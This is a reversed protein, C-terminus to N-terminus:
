LVKIFKLQKLGIWFLYAGLVLIIPNIHGRWLLASEASEGLFTFILSSANIIVHFIISSIVSQTQWAIYGLLVGLLYIQILWYPNFHIAAFFLSSLLIAKTIDGWATELYKQLFGRFLLEEGIPALLVITIILLLMSLPNDPTLLAELQLFSDPAPIIMDILINIEDALIMAGISLLITAIIVEKSVSNIRLYEIASLKKRNLYILVPVILFAQGFFMSIYTSLGPKSGDLISPDLASIISAIILASFVSLLVIWFAFPVSLTRSM